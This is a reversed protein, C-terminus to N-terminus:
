SSAFYTSLNGDFAWDRINVTSSSTGRDYDYGKSSGIVTGALKRGLPFAPLSVLFLIFVIQIKFKNM